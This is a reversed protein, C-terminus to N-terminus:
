ARPHLKDYIQRLRERSVHTYIQTTSIDAHGLMAQLARLDAGRELAWALGDHFGGAGGTNDAKVTASTRASRAELGRLWEGTGDTSANDVVLVEDVQPVEELRAVLEERVFAVPNQAAFGRHFRQVIWRDVGLQQLDLFKARLTSIRACTAHRAFYERPTPEFTLVTAPLGLSRAREVTAAILAQHGLHVGDFNGITLVCGRAANKLNALGRTLEM